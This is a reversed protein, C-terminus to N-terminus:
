FTQIFVFFFCEDYCNCSYKGLGSVENYRAILADRKDKPTKQMELNYRELLGRWKEIYKGFQGYEFNPDYTM